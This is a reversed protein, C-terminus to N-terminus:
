PKQDRLTVRYAWALMSEQYAAKGYQRILDAIEVLQADRLKDLKKMREPAITGQQLRDAAGARLYYDPEYEWLELRSGYRDKLRQAIGLGEPDYDGAYHLRSDRSLLDLLILASLRLQGNTCVFAQEPYRSVLAAFVAPNEVVYVDEGGSVRELRYLTQLTCQLPERMQYFGDLGMHATGDKLFAQVGYLLVTNSLDDKLIGARYLIRAKWETDSYAPQCKMGYREQIFLRLFRVAMTGEDFYHPDGSIEAAFVPLARSLGCEAPLNDCAHILIRLRQGLLERDTRYQAYLLSRGECTGNLMGALFRAGPTGEPDAYQAFFDNRDAAERERQEKKGIFPGGFYAYLIEDWSLAVFRSDALAHELLAASVTLQKKGHLNKQFFGELHDRETESRISVIVTGGVHGLSEAKKRVQSLVRDLVPRARLYSLCEELLKEKSQMPGFCM